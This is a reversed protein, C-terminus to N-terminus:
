VVDAFGPRAREFFRYGLAFSLIACVWYIAYGTWSIAGALFLTQRVSELVFTLPNLLYIGRLSPPVQELGYFVPSVFMIVPSVVSLLHGLDRFYVQNGDFPRCVKADCFVNTPDIYRANDFRGAATKLVDTLSGRSAEVEARSRVCRDRNIGYRDDGMLAEGSLKLLVRRYAGGAM